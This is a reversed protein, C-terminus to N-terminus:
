IEEGHDKEETPPISDLTYDKPSGPEVDDLAGLAAPNPSLPPPEPLVTPHAAELIRTLALASFNRYARARGIAAGVREEGYLDALREIQRLHIPALAKMRRKLGDLFDGHEPFRAALRAELAPRSLGHAPPVPSAGPPTGLRRPRDPVPHAVAVEGAADLVEVRRPYVRVTVHRGVLAAPVPYFSGDIVVTGDSQVRRVERRETPFLVEPLRILFPQEEAFMEHVYRGTTSHKRVNAVQDLWGRAKANLDDFSEFDSGRLLDAELYAFPREVKGKRRPDKPRCVWPTFGYHKAFELFTPNWLVKGGVRGLTVTTQNDFVLRSPLGGFSAFAEGHAHLLTPLRENRYFALFMRRSYGLVMSFAHAVTLIGGIRLRFPSWDVQGEEGPRTEFRLFVKAPPKTPGRISRLYQALITRSGLYGRERIERLIRPGMWGRSAFEQVLPKFPELKPPAQPPRPRGLTRRVTKVNCGLRRAIARISLGQDFLNRIEHLQDPTM